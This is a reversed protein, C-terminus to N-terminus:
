CLNRRSFILFYERDAKFCFDCRSLITKQLLKKCKNVSALFWLNQEETRVILRAFDVSIVNTEVSNM